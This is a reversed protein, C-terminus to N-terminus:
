AVVMKKSSHKLSHLRSADGGGVHSSSPCSEDAEPGLDRHIGLKRRTTHTCRYTHTCTYTETFVHTHPHTDATHAQKQLGEEPYAAM